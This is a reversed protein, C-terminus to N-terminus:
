VTRDTSRVEIVVNVFFWTGPISEKWVNAMVIGLQLPPFILAALIQILGSVYSGSNTHDINVIFSRMDPREKDLDGAEEYCVYLLAQSPYCSPRLPPSPCLSPQVDTTTVQDYDM